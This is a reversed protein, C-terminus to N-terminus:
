YAILPKKIKILFIKTIDSLKILYGQKIEMGAEWFIGGDYRCLSKCVSDNIGREM